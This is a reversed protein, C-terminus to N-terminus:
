ECHWPMTQCPQISGNRRIKLVTFEQVKKALVSHEISKMQASMTWPDLLQLTSVVQGNLSFRILIDM